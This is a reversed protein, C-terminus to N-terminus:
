NVSDIFIASFCVKHILDKSQSKILALYRYSTTHKVDTCGCLYFTLLMIYFVDNSLYIVVNYKIVVAAM